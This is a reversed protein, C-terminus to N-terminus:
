RCSEGSRMVFQPYRTGRRVFNTELALAAFVGKFYREIAPVNLGNKCTYVDISVFQHAPFTHISLHSEQLVVFGTWGGPDKPTGGPAFYVEPVCLPRMMLMASLENLCSRVLMQDELRATACRYGDIMVHEGFHVSNNPDVLVDLSASM